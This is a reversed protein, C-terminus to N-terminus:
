KAVAQPLSSFHSISYSYNLDSKHVTGHIPTPKSRFNSRIGSYKNHWIFKSRLRSGFSGPSGYTSNMIENDGIKINENNLYWYTEWWSVM